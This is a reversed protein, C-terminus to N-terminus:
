HLSSMTLYIPLFVIWLCTIIILCQLWSNQSMKSLLSSNHVFVEDAHTPFTIEVKHPYHMQRIAFEVSKSVQEFDWIAQKKMKIQKIAAESTAYEKLTEQFTKQKENGEPVSMIRSWGPCVFDSLDLSFNFDTVVVTETRTHRKGDRMEVIQRQEHHWGHVRMFLKPKELHSM